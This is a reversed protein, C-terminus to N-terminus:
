PPPPPRAAPPPPPAPPPPTAPSGAPSAAPPRRSSRGPLAPRTPRPPRPPTAPTPAWARKSNPWAGSWNPSARTGNSAVLAVRRRWVKLIASEAGRGSRPPASSRNCFNYTMPIKEAPNHRDRGGLCCWRRDRDLRRSGGRDAERDGDGLRDRAEQHYLVARLGETKAGGHIGSRQGPYRDARGTAGGM